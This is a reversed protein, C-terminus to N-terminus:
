TGTLIADIIGFAMAQEPDMHYDRDCCREITETTQGTADALLRNLRARTKMIHECVIAVDSAQGRVGGLPQHIMIDTLPTALRRKGCALILAGMSAALGTGVTVVDCRCRRMADIIALGDAVSGGPSNIYLTIEGSGTDDLYKLQSIIGQATAADVEGTLWIERCEQFQYSLLDLSECGAKSVRKVVPQQM